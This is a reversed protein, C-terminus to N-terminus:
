QLSHIKKRDLQRTTFMKDPQLCKQRTTYEPQLCKKSEPNQKHVQERIIRKATSKRCKIKFMPDRQLCDYTKKQRLRLSRKPTNKYENTEVHPM